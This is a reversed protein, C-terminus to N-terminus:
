STRIGQLVWGTARATLLAMEDPTAEPPPTVNVTLEGIAPTSADAGKVVNTEFPEPVTPTVGIVSQVRTLAAQTNLKSVVAKIEDASLGKFAAATQQALASQLEKVGKTGGLGKVVDGIQKLEDPTIEKQAEGLDTLSKVIEDISDGTAESVDAATLKFKNLTDLVPDIADAAGEVDALGIALGEVMLEGIEQMVKSPSQIGLSGKFGGVIAGGTKAGMTFGEDALRFQAASLGRSLPDTVEAGFIAELDQSTLGDEIGQVVANGVERGATNSTDELQGPIQELKRGFARNAEELKSELAGGVTDSAVNTADRSINNRIENVRDVNAEAAALEADSLAAAQAALGAAAEAGQQAFTEALDGAGREILANLNGVFQAAELTNATFADLFAQLQVPGDQALQSIAASAGPLSDILTNAFDEVPQRADTFAQAVEDASQGTLNMVAILEEQGATGARAKAFLSDLERNYAEVATTSDDFTSVSARFAEVAADGGRALELARASTLGFERQLAAANNALTQQENALDNLAGAANQLDRVEGKQRFVGLIGGGAAAASDQFEEVGERMADIKSQLDEINNASAATNGAGEIFDRVAKDGTRMRAAFVETVVGVTALAAVAPGIASVLLPFRQALAAVRGGAGAPGLATLTNLKAIAAATGGIAAAAGLAPSPILGLADGIIALADGLAEAVPTLTEFVPALGEALASVVPVVAQALAGFLQAMGELAPELDTAAEIIPDVLPEGLTDLTEKFQGQLARLKFQVNDAGANIDNALGDGLREVALQAGAASKEFLTLDSAITKGTNEFARANIEATSLAIGFNAAFRGGRALGTFLRQAVDGVDGLAPNLAVARAALAIVEKTTKAVQPAAVGSNVGLNFMTAAANQLAEDDDGLAIALEKLDTNLGGVDVRDVTDAFDGLILNFRETAARSELGASFLVTIGAALAGVGGVAAAAGAGLGGAAGELAGLDGTALRGAAGLAAIDVAAGEASDGAAQGAQSVDGLSAAAADIGTTDVEPEIVPAQDALEQLAEQAASTDAEVAVVTDAAEVASDIGETVATADAEVAIDTDAGAVAEDIAPGVDDVNATLDVTTDPVEFSAVAQDLAQQLTVGIQAVADDVRAIASLAESVDLSLRDELGSM